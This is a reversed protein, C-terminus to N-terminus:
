DTPYFLYVDGAGWTAGPAGWTAGPAGWIGPMSGYTTGIFLCKAWAPRWRDVCIRFLRRIEYINPTSSTTAPMAPDTWSSPPVPFWVYFRNWLTDTLPATSGIILEGDTGEAPEGWTGEGWAGGGGWTGDGAALSYVDGNACVILPYYGQAAFARLMGWATGGLHWLNWANKVRGAYATWSEAPSRQLSSGLDIGREEGLVGLSDTAAYDPFRQKVAQRAREAYFDKVIGLARGFAQGYPGQLGTPYMGPQNFRYFDKM